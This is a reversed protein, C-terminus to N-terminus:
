ASCKLCFFYDAIDKCDLDLLTAAKTIETQKFPRQNTLKDSLSKESIGLKKAFIRRTEYKEVIKGILKSYDYVM